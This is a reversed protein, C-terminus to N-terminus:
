TVTWPSFRDASAAEHRPGSPPRRRRADSGKRMWVVDCADLADCFLRVNFQMVVLGGRTCYQMVVQGRMKDRATDLTRVVCQMVVLGGRTNCQM